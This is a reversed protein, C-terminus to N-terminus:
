GVEEKKIKKIDPTNVTFYFEIRRNKARCEKTNDLCLPRTDAYGSYSFLFKGQLNKLFLFKGNTESNMEIFTNIARQTSLEKNSWSNGCINSVRTPINDTHGEIFITDIARSYKKDKMKLILIKAIERIQRKGESNIDASGSKFLLDSRLRM